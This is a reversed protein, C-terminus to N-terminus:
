LIRRAAAAAHQAIRAPTLLAPFLAYHQVTGKAWFTSGGYCGVRTLLNGLNGTNNNINSQTAVKTQLVGDLYYEYENVPSAQAFDVTVALHHWTAVSPRTYSSFNYKAGVNGAVDLFAQASIGTQGGDPQWYFSGATDYANGFQFLVRAALVDYDPVYFLATATMKNTDTYDLASASVAVDNVGDFLVGTSQLMGATGCTGGTLTLAPRGAKANVLSSAGAAENMPWWDRPADQRLFDIYNKPYGRVDLAGM